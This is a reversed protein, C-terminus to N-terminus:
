RIAVELEEHTKKDAATTDGQELRLQKRRRIEQFKRHVRYFSVALLLWGIAGGVAIEVFYHHWLYLFITWPEGPKM